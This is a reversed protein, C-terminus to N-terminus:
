LNETEKIMRTITSIILGVPRNLPFVIHSVYLSSKAYKRGEKKGYRLYHQYPLKSWKSSQSVDPNNKLYEIESRNLM